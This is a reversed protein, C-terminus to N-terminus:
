GDKLGQYRFAAIARKDWFTSRKTEVVEGLQHNLLAGRHTHIMGKDTLIACHCPIDRERIYYVEVDGIGADEKPIEIFPVNVFKQYISKPHTKGAAVTRKCTPVSGYKPMLEELGLDEIIALTLGGCDLTGSGRRGGWEWPVGLYTRAADVVDQRTISAM